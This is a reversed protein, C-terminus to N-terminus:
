KLRKTLYKTYKPFAAKPAKGTLRFTDTLKKVDVVKKFFKPALLSPDYDWGMREAITISGWDGKISKIENDIMTKEIALWTESITQKAKKQYELFEKFRPDAMLEQETKTIKQELGLVEAVANEVEKQQDKSKQSTSQSM